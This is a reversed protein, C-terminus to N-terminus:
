YIMPKEKEKKNEFVHPAEKTWHMSFYRLIVIKLKIVLKNM